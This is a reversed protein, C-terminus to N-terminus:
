APRVEVGRDRATGALAADFTALRARRQEAALLVCCQPLPLRTGARVAALAGPALEDLAVATVDLQRLAAAAVDLRQARAPGVLVEALTLVSAALAEDAAADLLARARAHLPDTGDLHAVLVDADLVIM